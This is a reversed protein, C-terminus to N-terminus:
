PKSVTQCNGLVFTICTGTYSTVLVRNRAFFTLFFIMPFTCIDCIIFDFQMLFIGVFGPSTVFAPIIKTLLTILIKNGVIFTNATVLAVKPIM